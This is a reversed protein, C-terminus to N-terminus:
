GSRVYAYITGSTYASVQVKIYRFPADISLAANGDNGATIDSGFQPTDSNTDDPQTPANSVRVKCTASFAGELTVVLPRVGMTPIWQGTTTSTVASLLTDYLIQKGGQQSLQASRTAM